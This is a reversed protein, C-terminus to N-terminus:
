QILYPSGAKHQARCFLLQVVSTLIPGDGLYTLERSADGPYGDKMYYNTPTENQFRKNAALELIHYKNFEKFNQQYM